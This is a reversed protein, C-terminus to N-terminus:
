KPVGGRCMKCEIFGSLPKAGTNIESLAAVTVQNPFNFAYKTRNVRLPYFM